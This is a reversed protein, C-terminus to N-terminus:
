EHKGLFSGNWIRASWTGYIKGTKIDLIGILGGTGNKNFGIAFFSGNTAMRGKINFIRVATIEMLMQQILLNISKKAYENAQNLLHAM